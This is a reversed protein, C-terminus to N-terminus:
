GARYAAHDRVVQDAYRAAFREVEAEFRPVDIAELIRSADQAHAQALIGGALRALEALGEADLEELALRAKHPSRERVLFSRGELTTAAYFRLGGQVQEAQAAVVRAAAARVQHASVGAVPALASPRAEKLELILDDRGGRSPGEVLAYYRAAGISGTGSGTKDAVDKVRLAAAGLGLEGQCATLAAQVAPVLDPRPFLEDTVRFRGAGDVREALLEARDARAAKELLKRVRKPAEGATCPPSGNGKVGRKLEDTYGDVFAHAVVARAADDLGRARAALEFGVAGRRVDWAFPGRHAEDFDNLGFLLVGDAREVVGFNEPHVDGNLLVTPLGRDLSALDQYFVPATGRFFSFPDLRLKARKCALGEPNRAELDAHAEQLVAQVHRARAVGSLRTPDAAPLGGQTRPAEVAAGPAQEPESRPEAPSVGVAPSGPKVGRVAM